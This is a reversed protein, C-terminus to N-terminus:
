KEHCHLCLASGATTMRLLNTGGVGNNHPDHCTACEVTVDPLTGFFPLPMDWHCNSCTGGGDLSSHDWRISVPHDNSLDTGILADGTIFTGGISGGFSDLAVTGDHCSLCLKSVGLPQVPTQNLTPSDYVTFVASTVEHNWLPSGAVTMDANHPTHCAICIEGDSWGLSSFDHASGVISSIATSAGIALIGAISLM